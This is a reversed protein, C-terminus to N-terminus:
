NVSKAEPAEACFAPTFSELYPSFMDQWSTFKEFLISIIHTHCIKPSMWSKVDIASNNIDSELPIVVIHPLLNKLPYPEEKELFYSAARGQHLPGGRKDLSRKKSGSRCRHEM